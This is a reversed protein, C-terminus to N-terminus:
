VNGLTAEIEGRVAGDSGAFFRELADKAQRGGICIGGWAATM